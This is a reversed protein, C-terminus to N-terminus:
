SNALKQADYNNGTYKIPNYLECLKKYLTIPPFELGLESMARDRLEKLKDQDSKNSELQSYIDNAVAVKKSDYPQMYNVPNCKITLEEYLSELLLIESNCESISNNTSVANAIVEKKPVSPTNDMIKDCNKKKQSKRNGFYYFVGGLVAFLWVANFKM